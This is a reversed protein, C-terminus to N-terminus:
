LKVILGQGTPLSLIEVNKSKAFADFARKQNIHKAWGYDDLVVVAGSVLKDWFFEAAAIEPLVCNMDIHLYCVSKAYVQELTEPIPGRIIRVNSFGSFTRVVEDYCEAYKYQHIGCLKEESSIREEPLGSFTDMLWFNKILSRFDIYEMVMRSFSGRNVGCEVFDGNLRKTVSAAWCCVYARWAPDSEYPRLAKGLGYARSFCAEHMFDANHTTALGDQNYRLPGAVVQYRKHFFILKLLDVLYTPLTARVIQKIKTFLKEILTM